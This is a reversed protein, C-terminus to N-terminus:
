LRMYNSASLYGDLQIGAEWVTNSTRDSAVSISAPPSAQRGPLLGDTPIEFATTGGQGGRQLGGPFNDFVVACRTDDPVLRLSSVTEHHSKVDLFLPLLGCLMCISNKM